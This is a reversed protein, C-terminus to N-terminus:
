LSAGQVMWWPQCPQVAGHSGLARVGSAEALKRPLAVRPQACRAPQGDCREALGCLLALLADVFTAATAFRKTRCADLLLQAFGSDWLTRVTRV